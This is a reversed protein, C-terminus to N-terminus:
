AEKASWMTPLTPSVMTTRTITTGEGATAACLWWRWPLEAVDGIPHRIRATPAHAVGGQSSGRYCDHAPHPLNLAIERRVYWAVALWRAGYDICRRGWQRYTNKGQSKTRSYRPTAWFLRPDPASTRWPPQTPTCTTPLNFFRPLQQIWM